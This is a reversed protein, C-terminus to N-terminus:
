RKILLGVILGIVLPIETLALLGYQAIIDGYQLGLVIIENPNVNLVFIAMGLGAVIALFIIMATKRLLLGTVLGAVFLAIAFYDNPIGAIISLGIFQLFDSLTM